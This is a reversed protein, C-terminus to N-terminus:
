VEKQENSNGLSKSILVIIGTVVLSIIATLGYAFLAYQVVNM